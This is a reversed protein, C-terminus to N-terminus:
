YFIFVNTLVRALKDHKVKQNEIFTSKEFPPSIKVFDESFALDNQPIRSCIDFLNQPMGLLLLYLALFPKPRFLAEVVAVQAKPLCHTSEVTERIDSLNPVTFMSQLLIFRSSFCGSQPITPYLM